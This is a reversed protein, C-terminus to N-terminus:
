TSQGSHQGQLIPQVVGIPREVSEHGNTESDLVTENEAPVHRNSPHTSSNFARNSSQRAFKHRSCNACSLNKIQINYIYCDGKIILYRLKSLNNVDDQGRYFSPTEDNVTFSYGSPTIEIVLEFPFDATFVSDQREGPGWKKNIRYNLVVVLHPWRWSRLRPNYHVVVDDLDVAKNPALNASFSKFNETTRGTIRFTTGVVPRHPHLYCTIPNTFQQLIANYIMGYFMVCHRPCTWVFREVSM